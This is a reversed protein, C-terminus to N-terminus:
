VDTRADMWGYTWLGGLSAKAARALRPPARALRQSARELRRLGAGMVAVMVFYWLLALTGIVMEQRQAVPKPLPEPPFRLLRLGTSCPSDTRGDTCVDTRGDMGGRLGRLPQGLGRLPPGLGTGM